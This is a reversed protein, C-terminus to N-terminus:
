KFRLEVYGAALRYRDVNDPGYSILSGAAVARALLGGAAALLRKKEPGEGCIILEIPSSSLSKGADVLTQLGQKAGLNGSYVSGRGLRLEGPHRLM